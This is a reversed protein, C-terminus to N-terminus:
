GAFQSANTTDAATLARLGAVTTLSLIAADTLTTDYSGFQIAHNIRPAANQSDAHALAAGATVATQLGANTDGAAISADTLFSYNAAANINYGISRSLNYQDAHLTNLSM